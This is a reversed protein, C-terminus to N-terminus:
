IFDSPEIGTIYIRRVPHDVYYLIAHDDLLLGFLDGEEGSDIFDPEVYPNEGLAEIRALVKSRQRKNLTGLNALARTQIFPDYM